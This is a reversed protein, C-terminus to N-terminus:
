GNEYLVRIIAEGVQEKKEVELGLLKCIYKFADLDGLEAKRMQKELATKFRDPSAVAFLVSNYKEEDARKPRGKPNLVSGPKLKGHDGREVM